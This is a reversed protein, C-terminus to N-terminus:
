APSFGRHPHPARRVQLLAIVHLMVFLPVFYAPILVLPLRSMPGTTVDGVLQPLFGSSLAGMTIAITLDVIGLVNWTAFSSTGAFAPDRMLRLLVWPATIGIAIDGVGAPWAFAGPLVHNAYLALFGLGGARWAQMATLLRIDTSLVYRRVRESGRYAAVFVLLPILVGAFIPLPPSGPARDFRSSAALLFVGIFWLVLVIPVLAAVFPSRNVDSSTM